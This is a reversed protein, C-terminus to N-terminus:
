IAVRMSKDGDVLPLYHPDVRDVIRLAGEFDDPQAYLNPFGVCEIDAALASKLAIGTDEIALCKDAPVDLEALAVQYIEPDPKPNTIMEVDGVFDFSSRHLADDLALFIAEINNRSTSTAFGLKLDNQKAWRVLPMVGKRPSLGTEVIARDFLETKREHLAMANVNEGRAEAYDEIRQRGGSKKLLEAYEPQDWHWNLGAEEFAKNFADRQFESTEVITGISGFIIAQKEM